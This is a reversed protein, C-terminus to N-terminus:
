STEGTYQYREFVDRVSQPMPVPQESTRDVFVHVFHGNASADESTPTFLAIEYTVSSRGLRGVRLAADIHDVLPLPKKFQVLVEAAFPVVNDKIWDIGSRKVLELVIIEFYRNYLANNVHGLLDYDNFRTPIALHLPYNERSDTASKKQATDRAITQSLESM